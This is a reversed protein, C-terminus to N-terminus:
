SNRLIWDDPRLADLLPQLMEPPAPRLGDLAWGLASQEEQDTAVNLRGLFLGHLAPDEPWSRALARVATIRVMVSADGTAWTKVVAPAQGSLRAM